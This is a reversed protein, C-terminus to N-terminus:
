PEFKYGLGRVTTIYRPTRRSPEIKSRLRKIHVDLTRTDGYYDNGWVDAILAERTCLRGARRMMIELLVFEKPPLIVLTGDVTVEHRDPDLRVPGGVLVEQADVPPPAAIAARRLVTRVRAILERVNFPKTIYDDAGLELGLVKDTESDRASVIIIPTPDKARIARCVDMGPVGALMLDLLVLAPPDAEYQKLASVGDEAVDCAFGERELSYRMADSLAPEDEVILIRSVM